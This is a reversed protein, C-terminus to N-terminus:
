WVGDGGGEEVFGVEMEVKKKKLDVGVVVMKEVGVRGECCGVGGGGMEKLKEVEVWIMLVAM